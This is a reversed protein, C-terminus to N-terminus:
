MIECSINNKNSSEQKNIFNQAFSTIDKENWSSDGFLTSHKGNSIKYKPVTKIYKPFKGRELKTEEMSIENSINQKVKNWKKKAKVCYKCDQLYFLTLTYTM